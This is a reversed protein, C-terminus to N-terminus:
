IRDAIKACLTLLWQPRKFYDILSIFIVQYRSLHVLKGLIPVITTCSSFDKQKCKQTPTKVFWLLLSYQTCFHLQRAQQFTSLTCVCFVPYICLVPCSNPLLTVVSIHSAQVPQNSTPPCQLGLSIYVATFLFLHGVFVANM